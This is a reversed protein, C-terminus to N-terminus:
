INHETGGSRLAGKYLQTLMGAWGHSSKFEPLAAAEPAPRSEKEIAAEIPLLICPIISLDRESWYSYVVERPVVGLTLLGALLGYFQSVLRRHEALEPRSYKLEQYAAAIDTPHEDYFRWLTIIARHMDASRYELLVPVLVQHVTALTMVENQQVLAEKQGQLELRTQELQERQLRLEEAQMGLQAHQLLIAGVVGLMALGSVFANFGGFADGVQGAETSDYMRRLTFGYVLWVAAYGLLIVGVRKPTLWPAPAPVSDSM